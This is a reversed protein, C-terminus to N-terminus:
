HAPKIVAVFSYFVSVSDQEGRAPILRTSFLRDALDEILAANSRQGIVRMYIISGTRSIHSEVFVQVEDSRQPVGSGIFEFSLFRPPLFTSPDSLPNADSGPPASVDLTAPEGRETIYTVTESVYFQSAPDGGEAEALKEPERQDATFYSPEIPGLEAEIRDPVAARSRAAATITPRAEERAEHRTEAAYGEAPSAPMAAGTTEREAARDGAPEEEAEPQEIRAKDADTEGAAAGLAFREAERAESKQPSGETETATGAAPKGTTQTPPTIL